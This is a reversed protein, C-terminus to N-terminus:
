LGGLRKCVEEVAEYPGEAVLVDPLEWSLKLGVIPRGLKLALAVESLTGYEGDIAILGDSLFSLLFNRGEGWGTPVALDVYPNAARAASGPLLGITLGGRLKAGRSAAEMVGGLGGTLLVAGREAIRAGVEEALKAIDADASCRGGGSVGIIMTSRGIESLTRKLEERIRELLGAELRLPEFLKLAQQVM